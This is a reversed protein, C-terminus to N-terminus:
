HFTKWKLDNSWKCTFFSSRPDFRPPVTAVEWQRLYSSNEGNQSIHWPSETCCCSATCCHPIVLDEKFRWSLYSTKYQHSIIVRVKIHLYRRSSQSDGDFLSYNQSPLRSTAVAGISERTNRLALLASFRFMVNLLTKPGIWLYLYHYRSVTLLKFLWKIPVCFKSLMRSAAKNKVPKAVLKGMESRGPPENHDQVPDWGVNSGESHNSICGTMHSM